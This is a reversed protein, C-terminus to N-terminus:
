LLLKIIFYTEIRVLADLWTYDLEKADVLLLRSIQRIKSWDRLTWTIDPQSNDLPGIIIISPRINSLRYTKYIM